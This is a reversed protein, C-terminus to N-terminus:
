LVTKSPKDIGLYKNKIKRSNLMVERDLLEYKIELLEDRMRRLLHNKSQVLNGKGVVKESNQSWMNPDVYVDTSIEKRNGDVTIRCYVPVEGHKNQKHYKPIFLISFTQKM